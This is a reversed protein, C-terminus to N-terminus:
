QFVSSITDEDKLALKKAREQERLKEEELREKEL